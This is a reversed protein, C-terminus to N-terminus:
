LPYREGFICEDTALADRCDQIKKDELENNELTYSPFDEMGSCSVNGNIWKHDKPHQSFYIRLTYSRFDRSLLTWIPEEFM